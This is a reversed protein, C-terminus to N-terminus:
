FSLGAEYLKYLKAYGPSIEKQTYRYIDNEGILDALNKTSGYCEKAFIKIREPISM